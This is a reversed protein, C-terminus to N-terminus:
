ADSDENTNEETDDDDMWEIRAFLGVGLTNMIKIVKALQATEKGNELDSLFRRGVGCFQALTTQNIKQARRAKRIISGLQESSTILHEM